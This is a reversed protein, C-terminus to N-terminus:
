QRTIGKAGHRLDEPIVLRTQSEIHGAKSMGSLVLNDVEDKSDSQQLRLVENLEDVVFRLCDGPLVRKRGRGNLPSEVSKSIIFELLDDATHGDYLRFEPTRGGLPRVAKVTFVRSALAYILRHPNTCAAKLAIHVTEMTCYELEEKGWALEESKPFDVLMRVAKEDFRLVVSPRQGESDMSVFAPSGPCRALTFLHHHPKRNGSRNTAPPSHTFALFRKPAGIKISIDLVRLLPEINGVSM